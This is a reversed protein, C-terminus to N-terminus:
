KDLKTHAIPPNSKKYLANSVRKLITLVPTHIPTPPKQGKAYLSVRFQVVNATVHLM